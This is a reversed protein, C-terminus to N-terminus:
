HGSADFGKALGYVVYTLDKDEYPIIVRVTNVKTDSHDYTACEVFKGDKSTLVMLKSTTKNNRDLISYAISLVHNNGHVDWALLKKGEYEEVVKTNEKIIQLLKGTEKRGELEDFKLEAVSISRSGDEGSSIFCIYNTGLAQKWKVDIINLETM